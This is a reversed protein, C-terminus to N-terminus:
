CENMQTARHVCCLLRKWQQHKIVLSQISTNVFIELHYTFIRIVVM